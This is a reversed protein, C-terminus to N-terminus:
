GPLSDEDLFSEYLSPEPENGASSTTSEDPLVSVFHRLIDNDRLVDNSFRPHLVCALMALGSRVKDNYQTLKTLM